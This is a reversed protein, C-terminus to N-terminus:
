RPKLGTDDHGTAAGSGKRTLVFAVIVGAVASWLHGDWSVNSNFRPLVGWLLTGGYFFGVALSVLLPIIRGELFGSVILYTILGFILGSAGIHVYDGRGFLWLLLGGLLVIDVVIAWSRANSGALLVMLIFLPLTNSMIHGLNEHLFPAAIIGTLGSVTRPVIGYQLLSTFYCSLLFVIWIAAMFALVGYIEDRISRSANPM